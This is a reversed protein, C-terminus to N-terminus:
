LQLLSCNSINKPPFLNQKTSLECSIDFKNETSFFFLIDDAVFKSSAKFTLM